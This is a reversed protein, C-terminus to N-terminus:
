TQIFHTLRCTTTRKHQQLTELITKGRTNCIIEKTHEHYYTHFYNPDRPKYTQRGTDTNLFINWLGSETIGVSNPMITNTHNEAVSIETNIDDTTMKISCSLLSKLIFRHTVYDNSYQQNYITNIYPSYFLNCVQNDYVDQINRHNNHIM